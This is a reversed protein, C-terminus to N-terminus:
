FDETTSPSTKTASFSLQSKSPDNYTLKYQPNSTTAEKTAFLTHPVQKDKFHIM